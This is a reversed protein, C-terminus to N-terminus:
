QMVNIPLVKLCNAINDQDFCVADLWFTPYRNFKRKFEEAVNALATYSAHGDDQWSHSVFFDIKKPMGTLEDKEVKKSLAYLKKKHAERKEEPIARPSVTFLSRQINEWEVCRLQEVADKMLRAENSVPQPIDDLETGSLGRSHRAPPNMPLSDDSASSCCPWGCGGAMDGDNEDEDAGYMSAISGPRGASAQAVPAEEDLTSKFPIEEPDPYAVTRRRHMRMRGTDRTNRRQTAEEGFQVNLMKAHVERVVGQRFHDKQDEQLWEHIKQDDSEPHPWLRKEDDNKYHVWYTHGPLVRGNTTDLLAAIFMGDSLSQKGEFQSSMIAFLKERFAWVSSSVLVATVAVTLFLCSGLTPGRDGIVVVAKYTQVASVGFLGTYLQHAVIRHPAPSATLALNPIHLPPASGPPRM